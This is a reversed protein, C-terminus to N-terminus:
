PKAEVRSGDALLAPRPSVVREGATLGSLIEVLDGQKQGTTILRTRATDDSVVLVSQLQGQEAIAAAPVVVVSRSGRPFKARGFMGGRLQPVNPLDIKVLFARSEPDVVPSIESIHAQIVRDLAELVVTVPQGVRLERVLSEEVPVELRLAGSQELTLLPTGPTAMVGPEVPKETVIGSFPAQIEAYGRMVEASAVGEAARRISASVQGQKAVAMDYAAQTAKVRANAEDYEQDSISKKEYLERMRRQTVKALDLSAQAAAVAHDVEGRASAAEERAAQKERIAADLDRSDITILLQNAAVSDGLRVKVERVSGMIKSAITTSTRARVTGVAEYTSPWEVSAAAAVQVTVPAAPTVSAEAKRPAEHCGTMAASLLIAAIAARSSLM